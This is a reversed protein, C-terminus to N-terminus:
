KQSLVKWNGASSFSIAVWELTRAQLIGPPLLRTPQWRHPGCLQVHSVHSLQLLLRERTDVFFNIPDNRINWYICKEKWSEQFACFVKEKKTRLVSSTLSGCHNLGLDPSGQPNLHYLIQRIWVQTRDGRRQCPSGRSFPVAEWELIRAQSIGHVFSGPLGCDMPNCLTLCLQTVLVCVCVCVCLDWHKTKM